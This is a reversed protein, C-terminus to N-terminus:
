GGVNACMVSLLGEAQPSGMTCMGDTVHKAMGVTVIFEIAKRDPHLRTMLVEEVCPVSPGCGYGRSQSPNVLSAYCMFGRIPKGTNVTGVLM